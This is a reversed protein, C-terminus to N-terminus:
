LTPSSQFPRPSFDQFALVQEEQSAFEERLELAEFREDLEDDLAEVQQFYEELTLGDDGDCAAALTGLVLASVGISLLLRLRLKM